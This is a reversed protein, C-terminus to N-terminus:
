DLMLEAEYGHLSFVYIPFILTGQTTKGSPLASEGSKMQQIESFLKSDLTQWADKVTAAVSRQTEASSDDDDGLTTEAELREVKLSQAFFAGYIPSSPDLLDKALVDGSNGM